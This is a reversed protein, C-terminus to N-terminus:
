NSHRGHWPYWNLVSKIEFSIARAHLQYTLDFREPSWSITAHKSNERALLGLGVQIYFTCLNTYYIILAKVIQSSEPSNLFM